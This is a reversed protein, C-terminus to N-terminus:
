SPDFSWLVSVTEANYRCHPAACRFFSHQTGLMRSFPFHSGASPRTGPWFIWTTVFPEIMVIAGLHAFCSSWVFGNLQDRGTILPRARPTSVELTLNFRFGLDCAPFAVGLKRSIRRLLSIFALLKREYRASASFEPRNSRFGRGARKYSDSNAARSRCKRTGCGKERGQGRSRIREVVAAADHKSKRNCRKSQRLRGHTKADTSRALWKSNRPM